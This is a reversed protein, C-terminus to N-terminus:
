PAGGVDRKFDKVWGDKNEKSLGSLFRLVQQREAETMLRPHPPTGASKEMCQCMYVVIDMSLGHDSIAAAFRKRELDTWQSPVRGPPEENLDSGEPIEEATTEGIALMSRLARNQARVEAMEFPRDKAVGKINRANGNGHGNFEQGDVTEILCVFYFDGKEPDSIPLMHTTKRKIRGQALYLLGVHNIYPKRNLETIGNIERLAPFHKALLLM